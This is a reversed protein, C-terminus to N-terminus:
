PNLCGLPMNTPTKNNFAAHGDNFLVNGGFTKHNGTAAWSLGIGGTPGCPNGAVGQDWFLVANANAQWTMGTSPAAQQTYSVNAADTARTDNFGTAPKKTSPPCVLTKVSGLHNSMLAVNLFVSDNGCPLRNAYDGAYAACALGIQKLNTLCQIRRTPSHIGPSLLAVLVAIIAIVVLLEIVTFAHRPHM